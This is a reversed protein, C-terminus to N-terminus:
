FLVGNDPENGFAESPSAAPIANNSREQIPERPINGMPKAMQGTFEDYFYITFDNSDVMFKFSDFPYGRTYQPLVEVINKDNDDVKLLFVTEAKKTVASGLHGTAKTVGYAVHIITCIHIKYDDAWKILKHVIQNSWELNNVDNMLDAIGDIFVLKVKGKFRELVKEIFAVREEASLHCIKFTLYQPYITGVIDAVSKFTRQAYYESQETDFDLIYYDERRHSHINPFRYSANGGIYTACLQTKFLTKKSKSPAAIVSFSGATMVTTPYCNGKFQHEGISILTEPPPLPKDLPIYAREYERAFWLDDFPSIEIDERVEELKLPM